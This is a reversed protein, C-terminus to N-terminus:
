SGQGFFNTQDMTLEVSYEYNCDSCHVQQAKLAITDKMKNIHDSIKNFIESSTNSIFEKIMNPDTVSGEPTDISEISGTVVDVTLETLRVFSEGFKEIKVDEPLDQNTVIEIIKQQELTKLAAKTIEKYTYPRINIVLPDIAIAGEYLFNTAQDLYGILNVSFDDNHTCSPCDASIEMNEGYTAIRIAILIADIDISPMQWPDLIAPVCSKIVEVTAQGNMLADPTKFMLEDKATMAYVPYEGTQSIDLSGAPYYRGKSPLKIYIKPQRFYNALPNPVGATKQMFKNLNPQDVIKEGIFIIDLL